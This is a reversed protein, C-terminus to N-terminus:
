KSKRFFEPYEVFYNGFQVTFNIVQNDGSKEVYAFILFFRRLIADLTRHTIIKHTIFKIVPSDKTLKVSFFTKNYFDM